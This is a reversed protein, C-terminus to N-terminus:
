QNKKRHYATLTCNIGHYTIHAPSKSIPQYQQRLTRFFNNDACCGGAQTGAYILLDGQYRRIAQAAWPKGYTPWSIFLARDPDQTATVHNGHRVPTWTKKAYWNTEGPQAPDYPTTDIGAQRMQWAWYGTGAGPETVPRGELTQRLWTIDGPTCIAWSYISCLHQRDAFYRIGSPTIALISPNGQRNRPSPQLPLQRIIEWYPNSTGPPIAQDAPTGAIRAPPKGTLPNPQPSAWWAALTDLLLSTIADQPGPHPQSSM